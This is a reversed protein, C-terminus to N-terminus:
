YPLINDDIVGELYHNYSTVNETAEEEFGFLVELYEEPTLNILDNDAVVQVVDQTMCVITAM